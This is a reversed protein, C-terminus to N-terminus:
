SGVELHSIFRSEARDLNERLNMLTLFTALVRKKTGDSLPSAGNAALALKVAATGVYDAIEAQRATNAQNVATERRLEGCAQEVNLTFHVICFGEANLATPVPAKCGLPCIRDRSTDGIHVQCHTEM